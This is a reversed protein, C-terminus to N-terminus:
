ETYAQGQDHPLFQPDKALNNAKAVRDLVSRSVLNQEITKLVELTKLDEQNVNQINVVKQEEQEVQIVEKAQYIRPARQVYFVGLLAAIVACLCILWAREVLVHLIEQVDVSGAGSGRTAKSSHTKSNM